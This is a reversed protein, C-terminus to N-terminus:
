LDYVYINRDRLEHAVIKEVENWKGGALGCGIRPMHITAESIKAVKALCAALADYRIPPQNNKNRFSHQAIMNVVSIDPTCPVIQIEGLEFNKGSEHWRRYEAEPEPWQRSIALVFGAGWGGADNCIHVILKKGAGQPKTADGKLYHIM